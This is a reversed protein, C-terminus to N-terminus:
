RNALIPQSGAGISSPKMRPGIISSNKRRASSMERPSKMTNTSLGILAPRSAIAVASSTDIDSGAIAWHRPFTVASCFLQITSATSFPGSCRFPGLSSVGRGLPFITQEYSTSSHPVSSSFNPRSGTRKTCLQQANIQRIPQVSISDSVDTLGEVRVAHYEEPVLPERWFLMDCKSLAHPGNVDIPKELGRRAIWLDCLDSLLRRLCGVDATTPM